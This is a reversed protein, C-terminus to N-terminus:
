EAREIREGTTKFAFSALKERHGAWGSSGSPRPQAMVKRPTAVYLLHSSNRAVSEILIAAHCKVESTRGFFGRWLSRVGTARRRCIRGGRVFWRFRLARQSSQCLEGLPEEAYGEEIFYQNGVRREDDQARQCACRNRQM